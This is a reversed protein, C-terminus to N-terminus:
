TGVDNLIKTHHMSAIDKMQRKEAHEDGMNLVKRQAIVADNNRHVKSHEYLINNLLMFNGQGYKQKKNGKWKSYTMNLHRERAWIAHFDDKKCSYREKERKRQRVCILRNWICPWSYTAARCIAWELDFTVGRFLFMNAESVSCLREVSPFYPIKLEHFLEFAKFFSISHFVM